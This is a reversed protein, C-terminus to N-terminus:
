YVVVPKGRDLAAATSQDDHLGIPEGVSNAVTPKWFRRRFARRLYSGEPATFLLRMESIPWETLHQALREVLWTPLTVSRVSARAKPETVRLKGNVESLTRDIRIM